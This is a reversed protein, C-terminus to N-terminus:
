SKFLRLFTKDLQVENIVQNGDQCFELNFKRLGLKEPHIFKFNIEEAYSFCGLDLNTEKKNSM